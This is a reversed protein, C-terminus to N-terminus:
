AGHPNTHSPERLRVDYRFGDPRTADTTFVFDFRPQDRYFSHRIARIAEARTYESFCRRSTLLVDVDRWVVQGPQRVEGRLVKTLQRALDRERANIPQAVQM